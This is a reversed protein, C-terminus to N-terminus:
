HPTSVFIIWRYRNSTLTFKYFQFYYELLWQLWQIILTFIKTRTPKDM